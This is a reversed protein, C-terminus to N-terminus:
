TVEMTVFEATKPTLVTSDCYKCKITRINSGDEVEGDYNESGPMRGIKLNSEPLSPFFM